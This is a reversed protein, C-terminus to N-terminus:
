SGDKNVSSLGTLDGCTPGEGQMLLIQFQKSFILTNISCLGSVVSGVRGLTTLVDSETFM